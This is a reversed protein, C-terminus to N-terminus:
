LEWEFVVLTWGILRPLAFEFYVGQADHGQQPAVITARQSAADPSAWWTKVQGRDSYVRVAISALEVPGSSLAENWHASAVGKLNILSIATLDERERVISWVTDHTQGIDTSAGDVWVRGLWERTADYTELALVEEYRVAFDYYARLITKLSPSIRGYNPFYPDALMGDREGLEVHAGGAAFIIADVLRVNHAHAPDIYAALVVPKGSLRQAEVIV